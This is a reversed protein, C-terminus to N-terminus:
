MSGVVPVSTTIGRIPDVMVTSGSGFDDQVVEQLLVDDAVVRGRRLDLRGLWEGEPQQRGVQPLPVALLKVIVEAWGVITSFWFPRSILKLM